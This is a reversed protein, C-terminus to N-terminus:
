YRVTRVETKPIELELLADNTMKERLERERLREDLSQRVGEV